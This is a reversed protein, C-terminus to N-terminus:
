HTPVLIIQRGDNGDKAGGDARVQEKPLGGLFGLVDPGDRGPLYELPRRMLTLSCEVPDM